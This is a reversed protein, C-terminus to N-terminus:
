KVYLDPLHDHPPLLEADVLAEKRQKESPLALIGVLTAWQTLQIDRFASITRNTMGLRILDARKTDLWAASAAYAEIEYRCMQEYSAPPGAKKFQKVHFVEHSVVVTAYVLQAMRTPNAVTGYTTPNARLEAAIAGLGDVNVYIETASNTWASLGVRMFESGLRHTALDSLEAGELALGVRRLDLKIANFFLWAEATQLAESIVNENPSAFVAPILGLGSIQSYAITV